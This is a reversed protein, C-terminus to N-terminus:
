HAVCPTQSRFIVGQGNICAYVTGNGILNTVVLTGDVYVVKNDSTLVLNGTSGKPTSIIKSVECISDGDCSKAKFSAFKSDIDTTTYVKYNGSPLDTSRIVSGTFSATVVSSIVGVIVAVAIVIGWTNKDM